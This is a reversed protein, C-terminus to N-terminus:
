QTGRLSVSGVDIVLNGFADVRAAFGPHLPVTSSFEEFVAPGEIEDGAGLTGWQSQPDDGFGDRDPSQGDRLKAEQPDLGWKVFAARSGLLRFRPGAQAAVASM